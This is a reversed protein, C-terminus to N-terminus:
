FGTKKVTDVAHLGDHMITTQFGEAHLFEALVSAIKPEDEVILIHEKKNMTIKSVNTTKYDTAYSVHM